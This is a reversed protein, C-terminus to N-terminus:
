SAARRVPGSGVLRPLALYGALLVASSIVAVIESIIGFLALLAALCCLASLLAVTGGVRLHSWGAGALRQYVHSRHAETLPEGRRAREIMTEVTDAVYPLAPAFSVLPSMGNLFAVVGTSAVLAGLLYSGVDGLFVRRGPALNWPAFGAFVAALVVGALLLARQGTLVGLLAFYTGSVGGHLASISDVGDMFNAANIYAAIAMVLVPLLWWSASGLDHIAVVCLTAATLQAAIRVWVSLGHLDEALGVVAAGLGAALIILLQSSEWGVATAIAGGSVVGMAPAIGVARVTPTTHSSRHNPIDLVGRKRLLPLVVIPATLSVIFSAMGIMVVVV